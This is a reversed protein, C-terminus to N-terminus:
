VRLASAVSVPLLGQLLPFSPDQGKRIHSFAGLLGAPGTARRDLRVTEALRIGVDFIKKLLKLQDVNIEEDVGAPMLAHRHKDKAAVHAARPQRKHVACAM